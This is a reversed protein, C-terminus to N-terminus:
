TGDEMIHDYGRRVRATSRLMQPSALLHQSRQAALAGGTATEPHGVEAAERKPLQARIMRNSAVQAAPEGHSSALQNADCNLLHRVVHPAELCDRTGGADAPPMGLVHVSFARVKESAPSFVVAYM